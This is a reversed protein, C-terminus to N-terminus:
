KTVIPVVLKKGSVKGNRLMDLGEMIGEFKGPIIQIPCPRLKGNEILEQLELYWSRAWVGLEPRPPIGYPDPLEVGRGSIAGGMVLEHRITKRSCLNEQYQELACYRGGTRGIAAYCMRLTKAEAFPDLVYRLTNKTVTRIDQACTPSNYDFVIDAGYSIVLDRNHPSCTTIVRHGCLKVMQIALLGITSGGGYVLVDEAKPAPTLLTGPLQLSWFLAVGLTAIATGSLSPAIVLDMGKPVHFTFDPETRIYECYAGSTPESMNSGQVAGFALDGLRFRGQAAVDSGMAVVTGSFDCGDWLGPTPFRLPMKFDCPNLAVAATKVLMQHPGLELIPLGHTIQLIGGEHQIIGTQTSPLKDHSVM